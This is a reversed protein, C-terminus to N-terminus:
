YSSLKPLLTVLIELHERVLLRPVTTLRRLLAMCPGVGDAVAAADADTDNSLLCGRHLLVSGFDRRFLMQM